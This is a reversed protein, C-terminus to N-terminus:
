RYNKIEDIVMIQNQTKLCGVPEGTGLLFFLIQLYAASFIGNRIAESIAVHNIVTHSYPTQKTKKQPIKARNISFVEFEQPSHLYM